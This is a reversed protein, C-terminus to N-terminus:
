LPWSQVGRLGYASEATKRSIFDVTGGQQVIEASAKPSPISTIRLNVAIRKTEKMKEALGHV